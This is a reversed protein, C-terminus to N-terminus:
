GVMPPENVNPPGLADGGGGGGGGAAAEVGGYAPTERERGRVVRRGKRAGRSETVVTCQGEQGDREYYLVVWDHTKGSEHARATNSFLATFSWGSREAHMVPLWANGSPNFRRPAIMKLGGEAARRRYEADVHLLLEVPPRAPEPLLAVGSETRRFQGRGLTAAIAERVALARRPGFGKLRELRGDHAALELEALSGIHLEDHLRHALSPGIGPIRSFIAEPSVEGELRSLFGLAGSRAIEEIARGLSPGIGSLERIRGEAALKAVPAKSARVQRAANRWAAIRFANADQVELLDATRNLLAAIADNDLPEM